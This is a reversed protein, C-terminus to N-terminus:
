PPRVMNHPLSASQSEAWGHFLLFYSLAVSSFTNLTLSITVFYASIVNQKKNIQQANEDLTITGTRSVPGEHPTPDETTAPSVTLHQLESMARKATLPRRMRGPEKDDSPATLTAPVPNNADVSCVAASRRALRERRRRDHRVTDHGTAVARAHHTSGTTPRQGHSRRTHFEEVTAPPARRRGRPARRRSSTRSETGCRRSAATLRARDSRIERM